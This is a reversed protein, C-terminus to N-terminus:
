SHREADVCLISNYTPPVRAQRFRKVRVQLDEVRKVDDAHRCGGVLILKVFKKREDPLRSLLAAFSAIQLAHDKEPRFQGISLVTEIKQHSGYRRHSPILISTM